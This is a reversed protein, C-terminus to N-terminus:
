SKIKQWLKLKKKENKPIEKYGVNQLIVFFM